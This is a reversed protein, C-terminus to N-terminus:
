LMPLRASQSARGVEDRRRGIGMLVHSRLGVKTFCVGEVHVIVGQQPQPYGTGALHPIEEICPQIASTGGVAGSALGVSFRKRTQAEKLSFIQADDGRPQPQM